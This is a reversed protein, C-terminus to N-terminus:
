KLCSSLTRLRLERDTLSLQHRFHPRPRCSNAALEIAIRGAAFLALPGRLLAISNPNEPDVAELRPPM